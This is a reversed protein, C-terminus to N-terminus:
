NPTIGLVHNATLATIIAQDNAGNANIVNIIGHKRASEAIRASAVIWLCQTKWFSREDTILHVISQLLANSTVIICNIQQQQWTDLLDASHKIWVRQYSEFYDVKAGRLMLQEALLERGGDGRIIIIHQGDVNTLEPLALIGDSDHRTPTIAQINLSQLASKTASGVAIVCHQHWQELPLVQHAYEVAAVSIFIIIAKNNNAQLYQLQTLNDKAQYDFFPQCTAAIGQQMLKQQLIRGSHAPRTIM